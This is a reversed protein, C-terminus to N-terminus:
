FGDKATLLALAEVHFTQPFLDIAGIKELIWGRKRWKSLDRAWSDPDCGIAIIHQIGMSELCSAIEGHEHGLGERPPDLIAASLTHAKQRSSLHPAEKLLWKLVSTSHFQLHLPIHAPRVRPATVDVCHIEKAKSTLPISLNGSGGYLDLLLDLAPAKESLQQCIWERMKENQEDHVQRFGRASHRANWIWEVQGDSLVEIEVKYPKKFQQTEAQVKKWAQNIEPRAIDCRDVPVLERSGPKFFGLLNEVGRLQVRNRYEWIQNAPLHDFHPPTPIEVRNLAHILGKTKTEWQLSYPLHQWQCGGCKGFAPCRPSQRQPSPELIELIEGEIYRKEAQVLRVRVLDGPASYPIFVVQGNSQRAVGAGGRSLDTVRLIIESPLSSKEAKFM